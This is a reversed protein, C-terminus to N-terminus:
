CFKPNSFDTYGFYDKIATVEETEGFRSVILKYYEVNYPNTKLLGLVADLIKDKPFNPNSLNQFISNAQQDTWKEPLWINHGNQNLTLVLSLFVNYYDVYVKGILIEHDIRQYLEEQQEPTIGDCAEVAGEIFGDKFSGLVSGFTNGLGLKDIGEGLWGSAISGIGSNVQRNLEMTKETSDTMIEYDDIALSFDTKHQVIFSDYTVTWINEAVLADIARKVLPHLHQSYIQPFLEVFTIYDHVKASYEEKAKDAYKIALDRFILRYANFADLNDPVEFAKDAIPFTKAVGKVLEWPTQEEEAGDVPILGRMDQMQPIYKVSVEQPEAGEVGQSNPTPKGTFADQAKQAYTEAAETAKKAVDSLKGFLGMSM